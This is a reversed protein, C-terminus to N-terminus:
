HCNTVFTVSEGRSLYSEHFVVKISIVRMINSADEADPDQCFSVLLLNESFHLTYLKEPLHSLIVAGFKLLKLTHFYSCMSIHSHTFTYFYVFNLNWRATSIPSYLSLTQTILKSVTWTM